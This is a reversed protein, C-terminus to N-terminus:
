ETRFGLPRKDEPPEQEGFNSEVLKRGERTIKVFPPWRRGNAKLHGHLYREETLYEVDSGYEKEGLGLADIIKQSSFLGVDPQERDMDYVWKLIGKGTETLM